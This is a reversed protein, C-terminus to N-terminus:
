TTVAVYAPSVFMLEEVDVFESCKVTFAFGTKVLALEVEALTPRLKLKWTVAVPYGAAVNV